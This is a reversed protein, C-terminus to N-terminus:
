VVGDLSMRDRPGVAGQALVSRGDGAKAAVLGVVGGNGVEDKRFVLVGRGEAQGAM